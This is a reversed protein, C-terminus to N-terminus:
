RGGTDEPSYGLAMGRALCDLSNPDDEDPQMNALLTILDLMLADIARLGIGLERRSKLGDEGCRIEHLLQERANM